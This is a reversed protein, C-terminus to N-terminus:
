EAGKLANILREIAEIGDNELGHAILVQLSLDCVEAETPPTFEPNGRDIKRCRAQVVPHWVTSIRGGPQHNDDAWKEFESVEKANLDRFM